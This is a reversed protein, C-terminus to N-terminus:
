ASVSLSSSATTNSGDNTFYAHMLKMIQMMIRAESNSSPSSSSTSDTSISTTAADSGSFGSTSQQYAMAEQFTVRGDGNTDAADFNEVISSILGSRKSDSSGIAELQSSLEDKTFGQDNGQPPPPPPMGGMGNTKGIGGAEMATLMRSNHFQQELNDHLKRLTDKFEQQTVKGDSDTDLKTFLADVNSSSGTSTSSSGSASAIKDFAAQLDSKQIYGQGSSDLRSFLDEAMQAPDPRQGGRMGNTTQMVSSCSGISNVSSM